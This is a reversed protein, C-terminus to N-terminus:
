HQIFYKETDVSKFDIVVNKPRVTKLKAIVRALKIGKRDVKM